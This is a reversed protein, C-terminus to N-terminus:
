PDPALFWATADVTVRGGRTALAKGIVASGHEAPVAEGDDNIAVMAGFRIPAAAVLTVYCAPGFGSRASGPPLTETIDTGRADFTAHQHLPKSRLAFPAALAACLSAFFSRRTNM